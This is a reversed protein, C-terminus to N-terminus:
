LLAENSCWYGTPLGCIKADLYYEKAKYIGIRPIDYKPLNIRKYPLGFAAKYGASRVAEAVRKDYDGTPYAFLDVKRNVISELQKKSDILEKKLQFDNCSTLLPHSVTHSGITILPNAAADILHETSIGDYLETKWDKQIDKEDLWFKKAQERSYPLWNKKDLVHQTTIFWIAPANYKELVPLANMYNNEMGDDFTLMVGCQKTKLFQDPSLLDYKKIVWSIISSLEYITLGGNLTAPVENYRRKLIGHFTLICRRRKTLLKRFIYALQLRSFLLSLITKM